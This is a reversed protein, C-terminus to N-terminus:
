KTMDAEEACAVAFLRSEKDHDDHSPEAEARRDEDNTIFANVNRSAAVIINRAHPKESSKRGRVFICPRVFLARLSTVPKECVFAGNLKCLHM